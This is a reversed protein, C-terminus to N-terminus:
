TFVSEQLTKERVGGTLMLLLREGAALINAKTGIDSYLTKILFWFEENAKFKQFATAKGVGHIGSTTDCGLLAHVAM